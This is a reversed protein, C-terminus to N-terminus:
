FGGKWNNSRRDKYTTYNDFKERFAAISKQKMIPCIEAKSFSRFSVNQIGLGQICNGFNAIPTFVLTKNILNVSNRDINYQAKLVTGIKCVGITQNAIRGTTNFEISFGRCSFPNDAVANQVSLTIGILLIIVPLLTKKDMM